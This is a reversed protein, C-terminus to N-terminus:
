FWCEGNGPRVKVRMDFYPVSDHTAYLTDLFLVLNNNAQEETLNFHIYIQTLSFDNIEKPFGSVPMQGICFHSNYPPGQDFEDYAAESYDLPAENEGLEWIVEGPSTKLNLSDWILWHDTQPLNANELLVTSEGPEVCSENITVSREEPYPSDGSGFRYEGVLCWTPTPTPTTTPTNTATPTATLTSTPTPTNTSTPTVTSTKTPTPTTTPTNTATPTATLTSTPTPTNTSTPTVTSTKTPTPTTTPTNTATPTATPTSIPTPTNTSTPTATSTKTPTAPMIEAEYNKMTLPLYTKFYPYLYQLVQRVEGEYEPVYAALTYFTPGGDNLHLGNFVALVTYAESLTEFINRGEDAGDYNIDDKYPSVVVEFGFPYPGSDHYYGAQDNKLQMVNSILLTRALFGLDPGTNFPVFFAHPVAHEPPYDPAENPCNPPTYRGVLGEGGESQTMADSFAPYDVGLCDGYALHAEVTHVFSDKSYLSFSGVPADFSSIPFGALSRVGWVFMPNFWACEKVTYTKGLCSQWTAPHRIQSETLAKFEEFTVSGSLYAIWTVVGGENAFVDWKCSSLGGTDANITHALYSKEGEQFLFMRFSMGDRVSRAQSELSTNEISRAWGETILLSAYLLANDGSPIGLNSDHFPSPLDNGSDDTM